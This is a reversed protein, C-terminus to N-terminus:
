GANLTTLNSTSSAGAGSQRIAFGILGFENSDCNINITFTGAPTTSATYKWWNLIPQTGGTYSLTNTGATPSDGVLGGAFVDCGAVTPTVAISPTASSGSNSTAVEFPTVTDYGSTVTFIKVWHDSGGTVAFTLNGINAGDLWYVRQTRSRATTSLTGMHALAESDFTVGTPPTTSALIAFMLPSDNNFSFSPFQIEDTKAGYVLAM